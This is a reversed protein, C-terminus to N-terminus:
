LRCKFHKGSTLSINNKCQVSNGSSPGLKESSVYSGNNSSQDNCRAGGKNIDQNIDNM